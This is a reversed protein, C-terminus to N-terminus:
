PRAGKADILSLLAAAADPAVQLPSVGFEAAVREQQRLFRELIGPPYADLGLAYGGHPKGDAARVHHARAGAGRYAHCALCGEDGLLVSRAPEVLDRAHSFPAAEVRRISGVTLAISADTATKTASESPPDARAEDPFWLFAGLPRVMTPPQATPQWSREKKLRYRVVIRFLEREDDLGVVIEPRRRRVDRMTVHLTEGRANTVVVHEGTGAAPGRAELLDLLDVTAVTEGPWPRLEYAASGFYKELRREMRADLPRTRVAVGLSWFPLTSLPPTTGWLLKAGWPGDVSLRSAEGRLFRTVLTGVEDGPGAVAGISAGDRNPALLFAVSRTGAGELARATSRQAMIEGRPADAAALILYRAGAGPTAVDAAASSAHMSVVADLRAGMSASWTPDGALRLAASAGAGQGVLAVRTSGHLAVADRAVHAARRACEAAATSRECAVTAVRLSASTLLTPVSSDSRAADPLWVVLPSVRAPTPATDPASAATPGASQEASATSEARRCAMSSLGAALTALVALRVRTM